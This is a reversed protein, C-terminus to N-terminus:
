QHEKLMHRKRQAHFKFRKPCLECQIKPASHTQYHQTLYRKEASQFACKTCKYMIGLHGREHRKLDTYRKFASSCTSCVHPQKDEHKLKHADLERISGFKEKCIHCKHTGPLHNAKHMRLVDESSCFVTCFPVQCMFKKHEKSM